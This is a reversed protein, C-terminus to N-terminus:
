AEIGECLLNLQFPLLWDRDIADNVIADIEEPTNARRIAHIVPNLMMAGVLAEAMIQRVAGSM